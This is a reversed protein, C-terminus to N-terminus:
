VQRPNYIKGGGHKYARLVERAAARQVDTMVAIGRRELEKTWRSVRPGEDFGIVRADDSRAGCVLSRIGSWLIAGFCMACPECSTVLEHVPFGAAGLDYAKLRQQALALAVMEAHAHSCLSPIVSNVGVAILLGSERAFVAAGFPGGTRNAVNRTALDIVLKMRDNVDPIHRDLPRAYEDLWDPLIWKLTLRRSM